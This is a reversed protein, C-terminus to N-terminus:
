TSSAAQTTGHVYLLTKEPSFQTMGDPRKNRVYLQIGPDRSPIMYSETVLKPEAQSSMGAYGVLAVFCFIALLSTHPKIMKEEQQRSMIVESPPLNVGSTVRTLKGSALAAQHRVM